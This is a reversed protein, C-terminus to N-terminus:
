VDPAAVQSVKYSQLNQLFIYQRGCSFNLGLAVEMTISVDPAKLTNKYHLYPLTIAGLPYVPPFEVM